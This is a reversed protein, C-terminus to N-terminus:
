MEDGSFIGVTTLMDVQQEQTKIPTVTPAIDAFAVSSFVTLALAMSAITIISKKM